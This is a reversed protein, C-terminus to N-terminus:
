YRVMYLYQRSLRVATRVTNCNWSLLRLLSYFSFLLTSFLPSLFLLLFCFLLSFHYPFLLLSFFCFLLTSSLSTPLLLLLPAQLFSFYPTSAFSSHPLYLLLSYLCFPLPCSFPSLLVSSIYFPTPLLIIVPTLLLSSFISSASSSYM